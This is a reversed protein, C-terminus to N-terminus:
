AGGGGGCLCVYMYARVCERQKADSWENSEEKIVQYTKHLPYSIVPVCGVLLMIPIIVWLETTDIPIHTSTLLACCPILSPCSIGFMEQSIHM